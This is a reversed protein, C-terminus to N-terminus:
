PRRELVVGAVREVATFGLSEYIKQAHYDPDAAIVLQDIPQQRVAHAAASVVLRSAIGRRRHSIRTDVMQFRARRRTVVIGLSGIVQEGDLAVYWGGRGARFLTRLAELRGHVFQRYTADARRQHAGAIHLEGVAAWHRADASGSPDLVRVVVERNARPHARLADPAATLGVTTELRYGHAVLEEEAAGVAGDLTDWAFTRHKVDPAQVFAADFLLEWRERDGPRPPQDFILANGWHFAPNRVDRVVWHDAARRLVSDRPLVDVDTGWVLSRIVPM